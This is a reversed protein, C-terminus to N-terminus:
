QERHCVVPFGETEDLERYLEPDMRYSKFEAVDGSDNRKRTAGAAEEETKYFTMLQEGGNVAHALVGWVLIMQEEM